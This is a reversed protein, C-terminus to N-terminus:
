GSDVEGGGSDGTPGAAARRHADVPERALLLRTLYFTLAGVGTAVVGAAMLAGVNERREPRVRIWRRRM